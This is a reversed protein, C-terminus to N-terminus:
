SCKAPACKFETGTPQMDTFEISSGTITVTTVGAQHTILGTGDGDLFTTLKNNATVLQADKSLDTHSFKLEGKSNTISEIKKCGGAIATVMGDKCPPATVENGCNDKVSEPKAPPFNVGTTPCENNECAYVLLDDEHLKPLLRGCEDVIQDLPEHATYVCADDCGAKCLGYIIANSSPSTMHLTYESLYDGGKADVGNDTSSTSSHNYEKHQHKRDCLYKLRM